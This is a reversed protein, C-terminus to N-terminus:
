KKQHSKKKKKSIKPSTGPLQQAFEREIRRQTQRNITRASLPAKLEDKRDRIIKEVLERKKDDSLASDAAMKVRIRDIDQLQHRADFTRIDYFLMKGKSFEDLKAGFQGDKKLYIEKEAKTFPSQGKLGAPIDMEKVPLEKERTTEKGESTSARPSQKEFTPTFGEAKEQATEKEASTEKEKRSQIEAIAQELGESTILSKLNPYMDFFDKPRPYIYEHNADQMKVPDLSPNEFIDTMDARLEAYDKPEEEPHSSYIFSLLAAPTMSKGDMLQTKKKNLEIIPGKDTAHVFAYKGNMRIIGYESYDHGAAITIRRMESLREQISRPFKNHEANAASSTLSLITPPKVNPGKPKTKVQSIETVASSLSSPINPSEIAYEQIDGTRKPIKSSAFKSYTSLMSPTPEKFPKISKKKFPRYEVRRFPRRAKEQAEAEQVIHSM